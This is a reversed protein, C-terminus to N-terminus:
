RESIIGVIVLNILPDCVLKIGRGLFLCGQSLAPACMSLTQPQAPKERLKYAQFIWM